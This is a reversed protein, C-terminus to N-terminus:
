VKKLFTLRGDSIWEAVIINGKKDVIAGHPSIFKGLVRQDKPLNPYGKIKNVGENDGLHTILKNEKDFITVRGHLDPIVVYDKHPAFHCPYRLEATTYGIHKGELTFHQLRVNARDAVTLIPSGSRQDVWLGHPCNMQGAEKGKGGFSSKYSGDKALIHIFSSGYGDGIFVEGSPAVAVNTPSYKMGDKYLSEAGKPVGVVEWVKEGGLTYKAVVGRKTDCLIFFESSGERVYHMGHAGGSFEDGWSKVFKGKKDLEVVPKKGTHFIHIHGAKDIAAGHTYGYETGAPLEMGWGAIPEYQHAGSGLLPAKDKSWIMPAAAASLGLTRVFRRRTDHFASNQVM